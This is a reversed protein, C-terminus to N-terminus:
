HRGTPMCACGIIIMHLPILTHTYKSCLCVCVCVCLHTIPPQSSPMTGNYTVVSQGCSDPADLHAWWWPVLSVLRYFLRAIIKAPYAKPNRRGFMALVSQGLAFKMNAVRNVLEELLHIGRFFLASLDFEQEDGDCAMGSQTRGVQRSKPLRDSM